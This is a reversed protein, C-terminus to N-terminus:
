HIAVEELLTLDAIQRPDSAPLSASLSVDAM